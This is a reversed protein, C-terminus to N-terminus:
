SFAGWTGLKNIISIQYWKGRELIPSEGNLWKIDSPLSLSVSTSCYFMFMYEEFLYEDEGYTNTETALGITLSSPATNWIYVINPRIYISTATSYILRKKCYNRLMVANVSRTIIGNDVIFNDNYNLTGTAYDRIFKDAM